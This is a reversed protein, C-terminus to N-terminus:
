AGSSNTKSDHQFIGKLKDFSTHLSGMAEIMYNFDNANVDKLDPWKIESQLLKLLESKAELGRQDSDSFESAAYYVLLYRNFFSQVRMYTTSSDVFSRYQKLYWAALFEVVVFAISTSIMGAVVLGDFTVFHGWVQWLVISAIYFYLGRRLYMSGQQLLKSAKREALNIHNGLYEVIESICHEFATESGFIPNDVYDQLPQDAEEVDADEESYVDEATTRLLHDNLTERKKRDSWMIERDIDLFSEEKAERRKPLFLYILSFFVGVVTSILADRGFNLKYVFDPAAISILSFAVAGFSLVLFVIRLKESLVIAFPESVEGAVGYARRLSDLTERQKRKADELLRTLEEIRNNEKESLGSSEEDRGGQVSESM